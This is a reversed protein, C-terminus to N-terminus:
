APDAPDARRSQDQPLHSAAVIAGNFRTSQTTSWDAVAAGKVNANAQEGTRIQGAAIHRDLMTSIEPQFLPPTQKLINERIAQAASAFAVPDASNAQRAAEISTIAHVETQAKFSVAGAANYAQNSATM